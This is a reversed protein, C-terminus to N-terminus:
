RGVIAGACQQNAGTAIVVAQTHNGSRISEAAAIFQWGASVGLGEGLIARPSIRPGNWNHWASIEAADLKANGTRSDVLCAGEAPALADRLIAAAEARSHRSLPIPDPLRLLNALGSGAELYVAAAGESAIANREYLQLGEASLWDIEESAVVLCGDVEGRGIWEAALDLGSFFAAGDGILTDNPSNSGLLASLHSSPANFVTEPFLIPSAVAPDALVESYFRHSYNVCGNLLTFIIGVRLKGERIAALREEGLAEVTAAAAFKSIPSSRRLRASKPVTAGETPVRFVSTSVTNEGCPRQIESVEPRKGQHLADMFPKVGWGAPSVVGWGSITIPVSM